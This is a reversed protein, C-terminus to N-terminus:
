PAGGAVPLFEVVVLVPRHDSAESDVVEASVARAAWASRGASVYVHDLPALPLHSPYTRLGDTLRTMAGDLAQIGSDLSGLASNLDGLLVVPRPSSSVALWDVVARAQRGRLGDHTRTRTVNALHTNVVDLSVGGVLTRARQAVRPEEAGDRPLRLRAGRSWPSRSLLAVGYRGGDFPMAADFRVHMGLAMGLAQAQDVGGSRRTGVDVEQLAAVDPALGRLTGVVGDMGRALAQVNYTVLRARVPAPPIAVLVGLLLLAVPGM